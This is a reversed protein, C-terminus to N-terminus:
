KIVTEPLYNAYKSLRANEHNVLGQVYAIIKEEEFTTSPLGDLTCYIIYPDEETKLSEKAKVLLDPDSSYAPGANKLARGKVQPADSELLIKVWTSVM